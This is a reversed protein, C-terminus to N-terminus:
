VYFKLVVANALLYYDLTLKFFRENHTYFWGCPLTIASLVPVAMECVGMKLRCECSPFFTRIFDFVEGDSPSPPLFGKGNTM